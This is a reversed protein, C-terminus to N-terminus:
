NLHILYRIDTVEHFIPNDDYHIKCILDKQPRKRRTRRNLLRMGAERISNMIYLTYSTALFCFANRKYIKRKPNVSDFKVFLIQSSIRSNRYRPQQRRCIKYFKAM